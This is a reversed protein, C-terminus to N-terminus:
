GGPPAQRGDILQRMLDIERTTLRQREELCAGLENELRIVKDELRELSHGDAKSHVLVFTLIGIILTALPVGIAIAVAVIEM